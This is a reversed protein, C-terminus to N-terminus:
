NNANYNDTRIFNFFVNEGVSVNYGYDCYFPPEVWLCKGAKGFLEYVIAKNHGGKQASIILRKNSPSFNIDLIKDVNDVFFYQKLSMKKNFVLVMSLEKGIVTFWEGDQSTSSVTGVNITKKPKNFFNSTKKPKTKDYNFKYIMGNSFTAIFYDPGTSISLVQAYEKSEYVVTPIRTLVDWKVIYGDGDGVILSESDPTFKLSFVANEHIKNILKILKGTKYDYIRVDGLSETEDDKGFWGGVALYKQDPSLDMAYIMGESGPGIQGRFEKIIHGRKSDWVKITKDSGATIINGNNDFAMARITSKHGDPNIVLYQDQAYSNIGAISCLIYLLAKM